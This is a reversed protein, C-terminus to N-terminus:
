NTEPKDHSQLEHVSSKMVGVSAEEAIKIVLKGRVHGTESKRHADAVQELPYVKEIIPRVKGAEVLANVKELDGGRPQVRVFEFRRGRM